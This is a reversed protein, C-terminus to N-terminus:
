GEAKKVRRQGQLLSERTDLVLTQETDPAELARQVDTASLPPWTTDPATSHPEDGAGGAPAERRQITAHPDEITEAHRGVSAERTSIVPQTEALTDEGDATRDLDLLLSQILTKHADLEAHLAEIEATSGTAQQASETLRELDRARREAQGQAVLRESELAKIRQDRLQLEAKLQDSQEADRRLVRILEQKSALESSL